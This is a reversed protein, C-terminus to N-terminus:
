SEEDNSLRRGHAMALREEVTLGGGEGVAGM